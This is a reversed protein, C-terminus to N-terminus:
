GNSIGLAKRLFSNAKEREIKLNQEAVSYDCAFLQRKNEFNLCSSLRDNVNLLKQITNMRSNMAVEGKMLKRDYIVVPRNMQYAFITGHFSDTCLIECYQVLYLFEEPSTSYENKLSLVNM